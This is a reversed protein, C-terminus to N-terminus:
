TQDLSNLQFNQMIYLLTDEKDDCIQYHYSSDSGAATVSYFYAIKCHVFLSGAMIKVEMRSRWRRCHGSTYVFSNLLPFVFMFWLLPVCIQANLAVLSITSHYKHFCETHVDFCIELPRPQNSIVASTDWATSINLSRYNLIHAIDTVTTIVPM